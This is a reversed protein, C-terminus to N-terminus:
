YTFSTSAYVHSAVNGARKPFTGLLSAENSPPECLAGVYVGNIFNGEGECDFFESADDLQDGFGDSECDLFCAQASSHGSDHANKM